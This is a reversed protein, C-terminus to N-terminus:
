GQVTGSNATRPRMVYYQVLSIINGAVWYLGVAASAKLMFFGFLVPLLMM